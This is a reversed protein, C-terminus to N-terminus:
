GPCPKAEMYTIVEVLPDPSVQIAGDFPGAMEVILFLAGAISASCLFLAGVVVANLPAFLGFSSFILALWLIVVVIFATPIQSNSDGSVKWRETLVSRMEALIIDKLSKLSDTAPDLGRVVNDLESLTVQAPAHTKPQLRAPADAWTQVLVGRAYDSLLAHAPCAAKGYHRLDVDVSLLSLAYSRVDTGTSSFSGQVSAVMLGLILSAVAAIMGVGLKVTDQTASSLHHEPLRSALALAGLAGGFMCAFSLAAVTWSTM